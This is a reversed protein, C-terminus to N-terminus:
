EEKEKEKRDPKIVEPQAPAEAAAEAATPEEAVAARVVVHVLLVDQDGKVTVDPPLVLERVHIGEGVQLHSVDIKISGPISGAKCNIRVTHAVTELIGGAAIGAAHGRFELPVETEIIEEASVRAFDVHVIEKGFHDWQVERILVTEVTGGVDLDALHGPSKILRAADDHSLAIPVVAQKHGYIVGPVLGRKRMRRVVRTGTGKNKAPDRTEVRIKVAEAM